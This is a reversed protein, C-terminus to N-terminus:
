WLIHRKVLKQQMTHGTIVLMPLATMLFQLWCIIFPSNKQKKQLSVGHRSQEDKIMHSLEDIMSQNALITKM